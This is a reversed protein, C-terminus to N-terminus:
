MQNLQNLTNIERWTYPLINGLNMKTINFLPNIKAIETKGSEKVWVVEEWARL